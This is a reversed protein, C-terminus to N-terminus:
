FLMTSLKLTKLRLIDLYVMYLHQKNHHSNLCWYLYAHGYGSDVVARRRVGIQTIGLYVSMKGCWKTCVLGARDGYRGAPLVFTM